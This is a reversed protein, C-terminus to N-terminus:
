DSSVANECDVSSVTDTNSILALTKKYKKQNTKIVRVRSANGGLFPVAYVPIVKLTEQLIIKNSLASIDSCMKNMLSVTISDIGAVQMAKVTLLTHNIVGLQNRAAVVVKCDLQAILDLVSYGEGLPVLLGGSGEILLCDCRKEVERIKELVENLEIKRRHKRAAVLPAIPLKFYFPNVLERPLEHNQIASLLEVDATGGSCFPKMALARVGTQRLHHLLLATLLTKGVGTDTGTVFIIKPPRHTTSSAM